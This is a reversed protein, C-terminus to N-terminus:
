RQPQRAGAASGESSALEPPDLADIARLCADLEDASLPTGDLHSLVLDARVGMRELVRQVRRTAPVTHRGVAPTHTTM